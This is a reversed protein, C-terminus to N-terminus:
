PAYRMAPSVSFILNRRAIPAGRSEWFGADEPQWGEIWRGPARPPASVAASM